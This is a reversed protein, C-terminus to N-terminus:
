ANKEAQAKAKKAARADAREKKLAEAAAIAEADREKIYEAPNVLEAEGLFEIAGTEPNILCTSADWVKIDSGQRSKARAARGALQDGVAGDGHAGLHIPDNNEEHRDDHELIEPPGDDNGTDREAYSFSPNAGAEVLLADRIDRQKKEYGMYQLFSNNVATTYYAFPNSYNEPDFKLANNCLNSIAEAVMEDRYTYSAFNYKRSYRNAIKTIMEILEPTVKGLKKARIVEPMLEGNTVYFNEGIKTSRERKM